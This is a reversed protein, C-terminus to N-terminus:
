KQEAQQLQEHDVIARVVPSDGHSPLPDRLDGHLQDDTGHVGYRALVVEQPGGLQGVLAPVNAALPNRVVYGKRQGHEEAQVEDASHHQQM